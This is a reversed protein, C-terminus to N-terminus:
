EENGKGESVEHRVVPWTMRQLGRRTDMKKPTKM